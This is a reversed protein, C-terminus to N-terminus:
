RRAGLTRYLAHYDTLPRVFESLQAQSALARRRYESESMAAAEELRARLSPVDGPEAVLAHPGAAEPLGGDNTIISPVALHRAEIPTLGLDERTNSPAVNWRASGLLDFKEAESVFGALRVTRLNRQAVFNEVWPRLPGDGALTLPWDAHNLQAGAYAELLPELGKNAIWRAMFFFGRREWVIPRQPLRSVAPLVQSNPRLGAPEWTRRVFDSIYCRAASLRVAADWLKEHLTGTDRRYNYITLLLPRRLLGAGFAIDPSANQGHVVNAWRLYNWLARSARPVAEFAVGTALCQERLESSFQAGRVLKFCLRPTFERTAALSEALALMTAEIGGYRGQCPGVLLVRLPQDSM